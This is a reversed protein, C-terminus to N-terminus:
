PAAVAKLPVRVPSFRSRFVLTVLEEWLTVPIERVGGVAVTKVPNLMPVMESTVEAVPILIPLILAVVAGSVPVPPSPDTVTEEPVVM